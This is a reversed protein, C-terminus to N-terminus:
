MGHLLDLKGQYKGEMTRNRANSKAQKFYKESQKLEGIEFYVRALGFYIEHKNRDLSLAKRFHAIAEEWNKREIQEEGLNLHYYPNNRRQREVRAIIKSAEDHRNTFRYLHALNEWATLSENNLHLVYQYAEEARIFYGKHRYLIGMNIWASQFKPKHLIAQRFYAYALEFKNNLLADAGKNNYFMAIVDQKSVIRKPLSNRSSQPDFDVQYTPRYFQFANPPSKLSIKLNIHGNLLSYGQRRTWYEPIMIEQFSIDFNAEKALAYMLISMSLCNAARTRFTESALTNADNRYLLNMNSRNFVGQVLAEMRDVPKKQRGTIKHVFEKAAVTLHFIDQESEVVISQDISFGSDFLIPSSVVPKEPVSQCASFSFLNIIFLFAIYVPKSYKM